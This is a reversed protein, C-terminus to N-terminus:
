RGRRHAGEREAWAAAGAECVGMGAPSPSSRRQALTPAAPRGQFGPLPANVQGGRGRRLFAFAPLFSAGLSFRRGTAASGGESM